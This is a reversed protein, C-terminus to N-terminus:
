HRPNREPKGARSATDAAGTESEGTFFEKAREFFTKDVTLNNHVDVVGPLGDITDEALRKAPRDHINGRLTVVGEKVEVEIERADILPHQELAHCITEKISDDSRKWGKPGRGAYSQQNTQQNYTSQNYDTGFNRSMDGSPQTVGYRQQNGYGYQSRSYGQDYHSSRLNSFDGDSGYYSSDDGYGSRTGFRDRLDRQNMPYTPYERMEDRDRSAYSYTPDNRDEFKGAFHWRGEENETTYHDPNNNRYYNERDYRESPRRTWNDPGQDRGKGYRNNM